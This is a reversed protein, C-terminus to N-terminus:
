KKDEEIGLIPRAIGGGGLRVGLVRYYIRRVNRIRIIIFPIMICVLLRLLSSTNMIWTYSESKSNGYHWLLTGLLFGLLMGWAVFMNIFTLVISRNETPFRRLLNLTQGFEFWGWGLGAIIQMLLLFYYNPFVIWAYPLPAVLFIGLAWIREMGFTSAYRQALWYAIPRSLLPIAILIAYKTYSLQMFDLMYATFFPASVQVAFQFLFLFLLLEVVQPKFFFQRYVSFGSIEVKSFTRNGNVNGVPHYVFCLASGLRFIGAFLFIVAFSTLDKGYQLWIGAGLLGALVAIEHVQSRRAFFPIRRQSPVLQTIWQNWPPGAAFHIIWYLTTVFFIGTGLNQGQFLAFALGLLLLSQFLSCGIVWNKNGGLIRTGLPWFIQLTSAIVVPFVTIQGSAIEGLGLALAIAAFYAEGTGVMLSYLGSEIHSINETDEQKQRKSADNMSNHTAGRTAVSHNYSSLKSSSM